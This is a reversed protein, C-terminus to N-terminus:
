GPKRQRVVWIAAEVRSRMNLKKLLHKVHVKVTAEAIDLKRGILKNSHGEAILKLIQKERDTLSDIDAAASENGRLARAMASALQPSVTIQGEMIERVADILSEPEMDKLLYGDAGGRLSKSVDEHNDSVTHMVIKAECGTDRLAKLTEIGSMGAMNQDLIVLDPKQAAVLPLAEAGSTAEGVVQMDAEMAFLQALGKRMLPHDDVIVVRITQSM